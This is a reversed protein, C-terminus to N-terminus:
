ERAIAERYKKWHINPNKHMARLLQGPLRDNYQLQFKFHQINHRKVTMRATETTFPQLSGDENKTDLYHAVTSEKGM